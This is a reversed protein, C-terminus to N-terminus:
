FRYTAQSYLFTSNGTDPAGPADELFEGKILHTAGLELQFQSTFNLRWRADIQHGAFRGSDGTIDRLGTRSQADTESALWIAQYKIFASDTANPQFTWRVGPTAINTQAFTGYISTPGFDPRSVGGLSNFRNSENDTPDDDGSIYDAILEVRSNLPDTFQYGLHAHVLVASVDQNGGTGTQEGTQYAAEIEHHWQQAAAPKVHRVGFTSLEAGNGEEDLGFYYLELDTSGERSFHIGWIQDDSQKDLKAENDELSQRDGPRRDVPNFFFAQAQWDNMQYSGYVGDYASITNRYRQRAMLRRSGIDLTMRGAKASFADGQKWGVWANIPELANVDDTGLPTGADHMWARQDSLEFGAILNNHEMGLNLLVQSLLIQDNGSTNARVTNQLNEYRLRASGDFSWISNEAANVQSASLLLIASTSMLSLTNRRM